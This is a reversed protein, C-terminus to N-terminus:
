WKNITFSYLVDQAMISSVGISYLACITLIIKKM